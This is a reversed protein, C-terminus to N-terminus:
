SVQPKEGPDSWPNQGQVKSLLKIAGHVGENPVCKACQSLWSESVNKGIGKFCWRGLIKPYCEGTTAGSENEPYSKIAWQHPTWRTWGRNINSIKIISIQIPLATNSKVTHIESTDNYNKIQCSWNLLINCM